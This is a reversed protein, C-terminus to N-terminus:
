VSMNNVPRHDIAHSGEAAGVSDGGVGGDLQRMARTQCEHLKKWARRSLLVVWHWVVRYPLGHVSTATHLAHLLIPIRPFSATPPSYFRLRVRYFADVWKPMLADPSDSSSRLRGADRYMSRCCFPEVLYRSPHTSHKATM